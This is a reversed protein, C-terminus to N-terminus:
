LDKILVEELPMRNGRGKTEDPHGLAVVAMLECHEPVDLCREVEERRNLIEGLWVGGLGLYHICLLMNQICAGVAQLDKERHYSRSVDLFVAICAAAGEIVQSYKTYGSLRRKVEPDKVVVFRWPQNNLGSPAWTGADMITRLMEDGVTEGTFRRISRRTRILDLMAKMYETKERM